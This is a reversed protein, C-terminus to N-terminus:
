GAQAEGVPVRPLVPAVVAPTGKAPTPELRWTRYHVEVVQRRPLRFLRGLLGFPVGLMRVATCLILRLDLWPNLHRIYYLDFALKRRVSNLDTDAPLQVQALGTVGPRILLRDRYHPVAEELAPVFEPREPRPGVLSMEGRLVNWLQPLEDLHTRRLFRGVLTIRPDGPIAWRPGTGKECNHHMTRVKHLWFHRGNKGLRVQSYFVPGRSTLKVLVAVLLLVPISLVLLVLALVFELVLKVAPYWSRAPLAPPSSSVDPAPNHRWAAHDARTQTLAPHETRTAQAAELQVPLILQDPHMFAGHPVPSSCLDPPLTGARRADM